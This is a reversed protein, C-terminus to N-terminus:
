IQGPVRQTLLKSRIRRQQDKQAVKASDETTLGYSIQFFRGSVVGINEKEILSILFLAFSKEALQPRLSTCDGVHWLLKITSKIDLAAAPFLHKAAPHPRAASTGRGFSVHDACRNTIRPDHRTQKKDIIALNEPLM